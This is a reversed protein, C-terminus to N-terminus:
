ETNLPEELGYKRELKDLHERHAALEQQCYKHAQLQQECYMIAQDYKSFVHGVNKDLVLFDNSLRDYRVSQVVLFISLVVGIALAMWFLKKDVM